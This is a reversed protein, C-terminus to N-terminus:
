AIHLVSDIESSSLPGNTGLEFVVVNKLRGSDKIAQFALIGQAPNRGVAADSDANPLLKKIEPLSRVTISDGDITVASNDIFDALALNPVFMLYGLLLTILILLRKKM